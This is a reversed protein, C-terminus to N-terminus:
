FEKVSYHVCCAWQNKKQQRELICEIILMMDPKKCGVKFLPHYVNRPLRM